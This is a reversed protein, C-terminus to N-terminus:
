HSGTAAGATLLRGPAGGAARGAPVAVAPAGRRCAAPPCCPHMNHISCSCRCRCPMQAGEGLVCEFHDAVFARAAVAAAAEVERGRPAMLLCRWPGLWDQDLHQLLQAMRADQSVRQKWWTARQEASDMDGASRMSASSDALIGRLEELVVQM